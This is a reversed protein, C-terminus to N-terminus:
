FYTFDSEVQKAGNIIYVFTEKKTFYVKFFYVIKFLFVKFLCPCFLTKNEGKNKNEFIDEFM